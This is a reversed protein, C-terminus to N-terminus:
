ITKNLIKNEMNGQSSYIRDLKIQFIIKNVLDINTQMEIFKSVDFVNILFKWADKFKQNVCRMKKLGFSKNFINLLYFYYPFNVGKQSPNKIVRPNNNLKESITKKYNQLKDIYYDVSRYKSKRKNNKKIQRKYTQPENLKVFSKEMNNPCFSSTFINLDNENSKIEKANLDIIPFFKLKKEAHIEKFPKSILEIKNPYLLNNNKLNNTKEIIPSDFKFKANSKLLHKISKHFQIYKEDSDYKQFFVNNLIERDQYAETFFQSFYKFLIFIGNVISIINGLADLLKTYTRTFMKTNRSLYIILSYIKSSTFDTIFDNGDQTRSYFDSELKDFGWLTTNKNNKFIWGQDDILLFEKLYLREVKTNLKNFNYFHANYFLEIPNNKKKQIFQIEPYYIEIHWANDDGIYKSLEDYDTCKKGETGMNVGDECLYFDMQIHYVFDHFYDGGMILDDMDICYLSNFDIYADHFYKVDKLNTKNCYTYNLKKSKFILNNTIKNREGYYYYIVPYIWESFNVKNHYDSITWPIYIKQQNFKIKKFEYNSKDNETVNPNDRCMFDKILFALLIGCIISSFVTLIGGLCTYVKKKSNVYWHLYSGFFDLSVFAEM